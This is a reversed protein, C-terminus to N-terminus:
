VDGPRITGVESGSTQVRLTGFHLLRIAGVARVPTLIGVQRRRFDMAELLGIGHLRGDGGELGVVLHRLWGAVTITLAQARFQERVADLLREDDPARDVVIGLHRDGLEAHHVHVRLSASLFRLVQPEVAAFATLWTGRMAVDEFNITRLDAGEFYRAIRGARRAARLGPPKTAVAAAVPLRMVRTRESRRLGALVAECEDHRQLAVVHDPALSSLKAHKLRRAAPGRVFGTTDVLVLGPGLARAADTMGRVATVHEVMAGRPSTAGVFALRAAPVDALRSVPASAFGMGVCTPPGIESQGIDADVIAVRREAACAANLLLTAFTTKGADPAGLLVATGASAALDAIAGTWEPYDDLDM